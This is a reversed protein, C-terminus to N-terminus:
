YFVFYIHAFIFSSFYNNRFIVQMFISDDICFFNWHNGSQAVLYFIAPDAMKILYVFLVLSEPSIAFVDFQVIFVLCCLFITPYERIFCM